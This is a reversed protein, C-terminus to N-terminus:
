VPLPPLSSREVTSSTKAVKWEAGEVDVKATTSRFSAVRMIFSRGFLRGYRSSGSGEGGGRYGRRSSTQRPLAVLSTARKMMTRAIIQRRVDAPLRLTFRERDDGPQTLSHGTSHSRPIRGHLTIRVEANPPALSDTEPPNVLKTDSDPVVLALDDRCVPCTTHAALWTDICESHFVHDCKPLLRLTEDDDQFDSLCVACELAGKGIKLHKVDSFPFVPFTDILSQNLGRAANMNTNVARTPTVTSSSSASCHQIYIFICGTIFFGLVLVIVVIAMSPSVNSPDGVAYDDDDDSSSKQADVVASLLVVLLVLSQFVRTKSHSSM